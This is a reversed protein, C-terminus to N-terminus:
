AFGKIARLYHNSSAVSMGAARQDALYSEVRSASINGIQRWSCADCFASVRQITTNVHGASNRKAELHKRFAVVHEGIPRQRHKEFPDTLGANGRMVKRKFEALMEESAAKDSCLAVRQRIGDQDLYKGYWKKTRRRVRKNTKPDTAWYTRKFVNAM